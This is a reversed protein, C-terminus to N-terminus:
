MVPIIVIVIVIVFLKSLKQAFVFDIITLKVILITINEIVTSNLDLQLLASRFNPYNMSAPLTEVQNLYITLFLVLKHLNYWLSCFSALVM